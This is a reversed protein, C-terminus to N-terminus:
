IGVISAPQLDCVWRRVVPLLLVAFVVFQEHLGTANAVLALVVSIGSLVALVLNTRATELSWSSNISAALLGYEATLVRVRADLEAPTLPRAESRGRTAEM